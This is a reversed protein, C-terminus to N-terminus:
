FPLGSGASVPPAVEVRYDMGSLVTLSYHGSADTTVSASFSANPTETLGGSTTATVTAGSVAAGTPGTVTGSLTVLAPFAPVTLNLTNSDQSFSMRNTGPLPSSVVGQQDSGVETAPVNAAIDYPLNKQITLSYNGMADAGGFSAGTGALPFCQTLAANTPIQLNLATVISDSFDVTDSQSIQGSLTALDPITVTAGSVDSGSVIVDTIDWVITAQEVQDVVNDNNTDQGQGFIISAKYTGDTLQSSFSGDSGLEAVAQTRSQESSFALFVSDSSTDVPLEALNDVTGTVTHLTVADVNVPVTKDEDVVVNRVTQLNFTAALPGDGSAASADVTCVRVNYSGAPVVMSYSSGTIGFSPSATFIEGTTSVAQVLGFPFTTMSPTTIPGSLKFGAPLQVDLTSDASFDLGSIQKRLLNENSPTAGSGDSAIGNVNPLTTLNASGLQQRLGLGSLPVDSQVGLQGQKAGFNDFLGNSGAVYKATHGWAPINIDPGQTIAGDTGFFIVHATAASDNPNSLAVGTNFGSTTDVPISFRAAVPSNGVGAEVTVKGQADLLSFVATLGVPTDSTIHASGTTLTGTGDTELFVAGGAPVPIDFESGSEGNSLQVSFADGDDNKLSLHVTVAPGLSFIIFQTKIGIGKVGNAVQSLDFVRGGFTSPIAPLTTLPTGAASNQRLTIAAIQTTSSTVVLRGRLNTMSPFIGEPGAVYLSLQGHGPLTVDNRSAVLDGDANYLEFTLTTTETGLNAVALGTNFPLVTDVAMSFQTLAASAGIGAETLISTGGNTLLSFVASVGIDQTSEVRASGVFLEGQGDTTFFRTEGAPLSFSKVAGDDLGEISLDVTEGAQNTLTLTVTADQNGNNNFIFTTKIQGNGTAIDPLRYVAQAQLAASCAMVLLSFLLVRLVTRM